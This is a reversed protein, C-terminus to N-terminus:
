SMVRRSPMVYRCREMLRAWLWANAMQRGPLPLCVPFAEIPGSRPEWRYLLPLMLQAWRLILWLAPRWYCSSAVSLSSGASAILMLHTWSGKGKQLAHLVLCGEPYNLDDPYISM